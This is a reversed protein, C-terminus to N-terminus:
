LCAYQKHRLSSRVRQEILTVEDRLMREQFDDYHTVGIRQQKNMVGSVALETVSHFGQWMCVCHVM